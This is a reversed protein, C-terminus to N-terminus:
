KAPLFDQDRGYASRLLEEQRPMTDGNRNNRKAAVSSSEVEIDVEEMGFTPGKFLIM